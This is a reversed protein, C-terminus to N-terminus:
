TLFFSGFILLYEGVHFYATLFERNIRPNSVFFSKQDYTPDATWVHDILEYVTRVTQLGRTSGTVRNMDEGIVDFEATVEGGDLYQQWIFPM